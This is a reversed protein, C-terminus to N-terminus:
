NWMALWDRELLSPRAMAKANEWAIEYIRQQMQQHEMNGRQWWSSPYFLFGSPSIVPEQSRPLRNPYM